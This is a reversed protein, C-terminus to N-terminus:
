RMEGLVVSIQTVKASVDDGLLCTVLLLYRSVALLWRIQVDM